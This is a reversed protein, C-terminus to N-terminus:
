FDSIRLKSPVCIVRREIELNGLRFKMLTLGRRPLPPTSAVDILLRSAEKSPASPTTREVVSSRHISRVVRSAERQRARAGRGDAGTLSAERWRIPPAAAGGKGLLPIRMKAKM